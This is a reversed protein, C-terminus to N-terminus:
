NFKYLPLHPMMIIREQEMRMRQIANNFERIKQQAQLVDIEERLQQSLPDNPVLNYLPLISPEKFVQLQGLMPPHIISMPGASSMLSSPQQAFHSHPPTDGQYRGLVAELTQMSQDPYIQRLGSSLSNMNSNLSSPISGAIAEPSNRNSDSNAMSDSPNKSSLVSQPDMVKTAEKVMLRIMEPTQPQRMRSISAPPLQVDSLWPHCLIQSVTYRKHPAPVLIRRLLDIALDSASSLPPFDILGKVSNEIMVTMLSAPDSESTLPMFPHYGFLMLFLVVGCAWVDGNQDMPSQESSVSKLFVEPATYLASSTSPVSLFPAEASSMHEFTSIKLFPVAGLEDIFLSSLQINGHAKGKSHIFRVGAVLQLFLKRSSPEDLVGGRKMLFDSLSLGGKMHEMVLGLYSPTLFVQTTITLTLDTGRM